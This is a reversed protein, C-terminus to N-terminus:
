GGEELSELAAAYRLAAAGRPVRLGREWLSILSQDVGVSRDLESQSVGAETRIARARGSRAWRRVRRLAELEDTNVPTVVSMPEHYPLHGLWAM